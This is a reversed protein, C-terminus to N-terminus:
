FPLTINRGGFDLGCDLGGGIRREALASVASGGVEQDGVGLVLVLGAIGEELGQELFPVGEDLVLVGGDLVVAGGGPVLAGGDLVVVEGCFGGVKEETTEGVGGDLSGAMLACPEM